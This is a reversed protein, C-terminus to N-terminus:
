YKESFFFVKWNLYYTIKVLLMAMESINHAFLVVAGIRVYGFYYSTAIAMIATLHHIFLEM